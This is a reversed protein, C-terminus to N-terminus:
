ETTRLAGNIAARFRAAAREPDNATAIASLVAVGHAGAELVERVRDHTMGGIAIVPIPAAECAERLGEIGRVAKPSSKSRTPFVPGFGVYDADEEYAAAVERASAATAGIIVDPGLVERAEPIPFDEQGLHVGAAGVALAVDLHDDIVLPISTDHCVAQTKRAELLVNRVGGTKQRFQVMDAGGRIAERALQAHSLRQQFHFDTLVHLRGIPKAAGPLANGNASPDPAPPM